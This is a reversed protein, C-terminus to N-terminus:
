ETNATRVYQQCVFPSSMGIKLLRLSKKARTPPAAATLANSAAQPLSAFFELALVATGTVDGGVVAVAVVGVVVPAVAAVPPVPAVPALVGLEPEDAEAVVTPPVAAVPPASLAGPDAPSIVTNKIGLGDDVAIWLKM